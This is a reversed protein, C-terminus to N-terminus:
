ERDGSGGRPLSSEFWAKGEGASWLSKEFKRLRPFLIGGLKLFTM